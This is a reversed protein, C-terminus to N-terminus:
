LDEEAEQRHAEYSTQAAELSPFNRASAGCDCTWGYPREASGSSIEFMRRTDM